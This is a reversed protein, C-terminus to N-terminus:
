YAGSIKKYTHSCNIIILNPKVYVCVPHSMALGIYTTFYIGSCHILIQSTNTHLEICDYLEFGFSYSLFCLNLHFVKVLQQIAM